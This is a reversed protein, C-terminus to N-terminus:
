KKVSKFVVTGPPGAESCGVFGPSVACACRYADVDGKHQVWHTALACGRANGRSSFHSDSQRCGVPGGVIEARGDQSLNVLVRLACLVM